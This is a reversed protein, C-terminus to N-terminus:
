KDIRIIKTYVKANTFTDNPLEELTEATDHKFTIPVIATITGGPSLLSEATKIHQKVKRFPPNMIIRDFRRPTSGAWELFCDNIVEIDAFVTGTYEADHEAFRQRMIDCLGCHREVITINNVDHGREAMALAINGTGGSPELMKHGERLDAYYFMNAAVKPPTVHCETGKDVMVPKNLGVVPRAETEERDRPVLMKRPKAAPRTYISPRQM